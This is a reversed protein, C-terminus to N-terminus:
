SAQSASSGTNDQSIVVTRMVKDALTQRRVDWLPLLYGVGLTLIDLAHALRRVFAAGAGIPQKDAM